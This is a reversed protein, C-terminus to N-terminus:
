KHHLKTLSDPKIITVLPELSCLGICGVESVVADANQRKLEKCFAEIVDLAGAARGCTASGILIHPKEGRYLADWSSQAKNRIEEFTM